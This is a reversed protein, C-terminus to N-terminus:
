CGRVLGEAHQHAEVHILIEGSLDSSDTALTSEVDNARMLNLSVSRRVVLLEVM